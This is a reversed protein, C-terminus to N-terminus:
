CSVYLCKARLKIPNTNLEYLLICLLNCPVLATKSAYWAVMVKEREDWMELRCRSKCVTSCCFLHGSLWTLLCHAWFMQSVDKFGCVVWYSNCIKWDVQLCCFISLWWQNNWWCNWCSCMQRFFVSDLNLEASLLHSRKVPLCAAGDSTHQHDRESAASQGAAPKIQELLKGGCVFYDCCDVYNSDGKRCSTWCIIRKAGPLHFLLALFRLFKDEFPYTWVWQFWVSYRQM